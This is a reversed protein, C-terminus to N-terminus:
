SLMVALYGGVSASDGIVLSRNLVVAFFVEVFSRRGDPWVERSSVPKM